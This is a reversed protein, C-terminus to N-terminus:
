FKLEYGIGLRAASYAQTSIQYTQNASGIIEFFVKGRKNLKRGFEIGYDLGFFQDFFSSYSVKGGTLKDNSFYAEGLFTNFHHNSFYAWGLKPTLLWKRKQGLWIDYTAQLALTFNANYEFSTKRNQYDDKSIGIFQELFQQEGYSIDDHILRYGRKFNNSTARDVSLYVALDRYVYYKIGARLYPGWPEESTYRLQSVGGSMKLFLGKDATQANATLSFFLAALFFIKKM